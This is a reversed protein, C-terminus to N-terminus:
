MRPIKGGHLRKVLWTLAVAFVVVFVVAALTWGM